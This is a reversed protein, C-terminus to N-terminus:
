DNSVVESPLPVIVGLEISGWQRIKEMFIEWEVTNLSSTPKIYEIEAPGHVTDIVRTESLFKAKLIEKMEPNSYGIHEALVPVVCGHFYRNEANSRGSLFSADKLVFQCNPCRNM